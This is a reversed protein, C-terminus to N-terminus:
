LKKVKKEKRIKISLLITPTITGIKMTIMAAKNNIKGDESIVGSFFLSVIPNTILEGVVVTEKCCSSSNKLSQNMM